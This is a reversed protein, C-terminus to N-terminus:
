TEPPRHHHHTPPQKQKKAMFSVKKEASKPRRESCPFSCLIASLVKPTVFSYLRSLCLAFQWPNMVMIVFKATSSYIHFLGSPSENALIMNLSGSSCWKPNLALTSGSKEKKGEKRKNLHYLVDHKIRRFFGEEGDTINNMQNRQCVGEKQRKVCTSQIFCTLCKKFM